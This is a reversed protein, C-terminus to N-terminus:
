QRISESKMHNAIRNVRFTAETRDLHDTREVMCSPMSNAARNLFKRISDDLEAVHAADPNDAPPTEPQAAETQGTPQVLHV